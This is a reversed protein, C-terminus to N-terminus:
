KKGTQSSFQEFVMKSKLINKRGFIAPKKPLLHRVHEKYRTFVSRMDGTTGFLTFASISCYAPHGYM